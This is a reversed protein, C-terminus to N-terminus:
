AKALPEREVFRSNITQPFDQVYTRRKGADGNQEVCFSLCQALAETRSTSTHRVWVSSDKSVSQYTYETPRSSSSSQEHSPAPFWGCQSRLQEAAHELDKLHESKKVTCIYPNPLYPNLDEFRLKKWLLTRRCRLCEVKRYDATLHISQCGCETWNKHRTMLHIPKGLM